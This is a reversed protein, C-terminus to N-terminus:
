ASTRAEDPVIPVILKGITADSMFPAAHQRLGADDSTRDQASKFHEFLTAAAGRATALPDGAAPV